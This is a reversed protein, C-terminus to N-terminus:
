ICFSLTCHIIFYLSHYLVTCVKIHVTVSFIGHSRSSVENMKTAATIRRDSGKRLMQLAHASDTVLVEELGQVIVTGKHNLDEYLKLPRKQLPNTNTLLDRLEENYIEIYSVRVSYETCDRELIDFLERLARPIIGADESLEAGKSCTAETLMEKNNENNAVDSATARVHTTKAKTPAHEPFGEMTYTKGSGTQGYAFITCNYGLLVEALLPSVVTAFITHQSTAPGFVRDFTYTRQNDSHRVVVERSGQTGVAVASGQERVPRVRVVVSINSGEKEM